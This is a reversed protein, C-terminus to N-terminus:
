TRAAHARDRPPGIANEWQEFYSSFISESTTKSNSNHLPSGTLQYPTVKDVDEFRQPPKQM